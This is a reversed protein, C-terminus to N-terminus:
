LGWWGLEEYLSCGWNWSVSHEGVMAKAKVKNCPM